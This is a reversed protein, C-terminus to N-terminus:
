PNVTFALSYPTGAPSNFNQQAGPDQIYLVFSESNGPGCLCWTDSPLTSMETDGIPIDRSLSRSNWFSKRLNDKQFILVAWTRKESTAYTNRFTIFFQVRDGRHVDSPALRVNAISIQNPARSAAVVTPALTPAVATVTVQPAVTVVIVTVAPSPAAQTPEATAAIETAAIQATPTPADIAEAKVTAATTYTPTATPVVAVVRAVTPEAAAFGALNNRFFWFGAGLLLLIVILVLAIVPLRSAPKAPVPAPARVTPTAIEPNTPPRMAHPPHGPPPAGAPTGGRPVSVPPTVLGDRFAKASIWRRTTDPEMALKIANDVQPSITPVLTKLPPLTVMNAVRLTSEPPIQGTLLTYLTAGVAYIDSRADTRMGYQEPPAFGPTVARAGTMTMATAEYVKAIGFDVLVAKGQPTIKINSPKIDRHIIPAQQEHMYQLADLIQVIYGVAQKEPLPGAREVIAGLDEGEVYDMVLYQRGTAPDDFYDTVRPLNPHSLRALFEAERHFQARAQPDNQLNEKVAVRVNLRTDEARYVRSMGGQGLLSDITYREHITIDPSLPQMPQQM